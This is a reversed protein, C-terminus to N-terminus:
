QAEWRLTVADFMGMPNLGFGKLRPTVLQPNTYYYIPAGPMKEFWYRDAELLSRIRTAPNADARARALLGDFHPDHFNASNNPSATDYIELFNIPDGFDAIWSGRAIDFKGARKDDLLVKFELNDVSIEVGLERRWTEQLVQAIQRHTELTNYIYRFKRLGKGGPYGAEALLARAKDYAANTFDAVLTESTKGAYLGPPSLFFAPTEGARTVSRTIAERDIAMSLARRVRVDDLPPSECNFDIFYTALMPFFQLEPTGKLQDLDPRPVSNNIDLEGVDFAIRGTSEAEILRLSLRELKVAGANWYDPNREMEIVDGSRYNTLRFPGNGVYTEPRPKRAWDPHERDARPCVPFYSHHAILQLFFPTPGELIVQLRDPAPAKVGVSEGGRAPDEYFAKAGKIYFLQYVSESATKPNLMREVWTYVFDQATVPDGNTWKAPRLKFEWTLGDASVTWSEALDAQPEGVADLVTLGRMMCLIARASSIDTALTPDFTRPDSGINISAENREIREARPDGQCGGLLAACAAILFPIFRRLLM